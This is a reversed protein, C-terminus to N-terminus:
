DSGGMADSTDFSREDGNDNVADDYFDNSVIEQKILTKSTFLFYIEYRRERCVLDVHWNLPDANM